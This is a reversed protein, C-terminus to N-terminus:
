RPPALSQQRIPPNPQLQVPAQASPPLAQEVPPYAPAYGAGPSGSPPPPPPLPTAVHQVPSSGWKTLVERLPDAGPNVGQMQVVVQRASYAQGYYAANWDSRISMISGELAVGGFLGRSQAFAVIDAGVAATTSGQVGAG